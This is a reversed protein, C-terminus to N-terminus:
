RKTNDFFNWGRLDDVYGNGDNDIGDELEFPNLWLNAALDQHEYDIGEDLIGVLVSKSGTFGQNWAAEANSGFANTTGVPGNATPSDSGYMGWLQGSRYLLDNSIAQTQLLQDVEAFRVGSTASYAALAAEVNVALPLQIVEMVGEGRAKMPATHILEKRVGGFLALAATRESETADMAWQVLLREGFAVPREPAPLVASAASSSPALSAAATPDAGGPDTLDLWSDAVGGAVAAPWKPPPVPTPAVPALPDVMAGSVPSWAAPPPESFPSGVPGWPGNAASASAPPGEEPATRRDPALSFWDEITLPTPSGPVTPVPRTM